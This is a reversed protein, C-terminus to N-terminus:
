PQPTTPKAGPAAPPAAVQQAQQMKTIQAQQEEPSRKFQSMWGGGQLQMSYLFMGMLDYEVGIQPLVQQAQFLTSFTDSSILKESPMFGDSLTFSLSAKRLMAPDVQVSTKDRSSVLTTPPQYQLINSKIIEKIPSYFTHELILARMRGRGGANNMVTEFERRTKNGKQFQGQQVKNVGNVLDGFGLVNQAMSVIESVGDDRYPSEHVAESITKGYASNKVPIRAVSSARDIDVKNIRSPDYYIRDYVKRRQSELGSNMLSSSIQQIPAANELFSKSQYGMGDGSPKCVIIPLYNHANTQREFYVIHQGNVVIMKYIAIHNKNSINLGLDSPLIRIYLVTYDYENKYNIDPQKNTPLNMWALWDFKQKNGVALLAGPNIQPEYYLSTIDTSTAPATSGSEFAKKFNMTGLVPLDNLRKKLAIRSLKQTYGAFEGDIHNRDPSVRTDLILNYPSIDNIFNGEYITEEIAGQTIDTTAPSTIGFTKRKEWVVEAAGLDYKLGNRMTKLLESPWGARISNEGVIVEMQQMADIQDPPAVVGFLPYSTLFIEQLDSLATEVQPMAVPVTLNQLKSADGQANAAVAKQHVPTSDQERYYVLDRQLLQSRINYSTIYQGAAASFFRLLSAQADESLPLPTTPSAM